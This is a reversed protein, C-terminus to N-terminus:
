LYLINVAVIIFHTSVAGLEYLVYARVFNFVCACVCVCVCVCVCM